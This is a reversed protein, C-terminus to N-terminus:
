NVREKILATSEPDINILSKNCVARNVKIIAGNFEQKKRYAAICVDTENVNLSDIAVVSSDKSAVGILSQTVGVKNALLISREGVSLGKDGCNIFTLQGLKYKGGSVDFCDNGANSVTVDNVVLDSFDLDIADAFSNSAEIKKIKGRSSVINLADECGGMLLYFEVENLDSDIINVCGTLGYDNIRQKKNEDFNTENLGIFKISVNSITQGKILFWDDSNIQKLLLEKKSSDYQVKANLAHRVSFSELFM